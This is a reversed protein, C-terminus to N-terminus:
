KADGGATSGHLARHICSKSMGLRESIARITLGEARLAIVQATRSPRRRSIRLANFDKRLTSFSVGLAGLIEDFSAGQAVMAAVRARREEVQAQLEASYLQVGHDERPLTLGLAALDSRLLSPAVGLEARIAARGLGAAHLEALRARRDAQAKLLPSLDGTARLRRPRPAAAPRPLTVGLERLDRRVTRETVGVRAAIEAVSLGEAALAALQARRDDAVQRRRELVARAAERDRGSPVDRASMGLRNLHGRLTNAAIGLQACIEAQTRGQTVMARVEERLAAAKRFVKPSKVIEVGMHRAIARVAKASLRVDASIEDATRGEAALAAIRAKRAEVAPMVIPARPARARVPVPHPDLGLVRLDERVTKWTSGIESAIDRVPMGAAHLDAVRGRRNGRATRVAASAREFSVRRLERIMTHGGPYVLQHGNWVPLPRASAGQPVQQVKGARVAADILARDDATLGKM